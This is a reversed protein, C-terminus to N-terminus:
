TLRTGSKLGLYRDIVAHCGYIVPTLLIAMTFKFVYQVTGVALLRSWPWPESVGGFLEPGFKFAVFLVVFSDVLQSVLTSGTARLWLMREGTRERIRHFVFVDTLQGILFATVSGVIIFLGQGFTVRFAAQNDPVGQVQAGARWWEAPTLQIAFFIMVFAYLILVVTFYSLLRVGREGYYENLLDTVVFVVPWLLVGASFQLAGVEGFLNFNWPELGLTDELAFIKVGILEAVLANAVFFGALFVYLRSPRYRVVEDTYLM